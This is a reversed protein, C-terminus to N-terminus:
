EGDDWGTPDTQLEKASRPDIEELISRLVGALIPKPLPTRWAFSANDTYPRILIVCPVDRRDGLNMLLKEMHAVKRELQDREPDIIGNNAM